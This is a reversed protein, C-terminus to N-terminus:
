TPSMPAACRTSTWGPGLGLADRYTAFRPQSRWGVRAGRESPWAGSAWRCRVAAPGRHVVARAGRHDVALCDARQAAQAAFGEEGQRVPRLGRRVRRVGAGDPNRGFDAVDLMRTENRRLGYAYAVKFMTADRFAPLWGKRGLARKRSRSTPTTSCRRCSTAPSRGSRPEAESDAVHVATNVRTIVQVPHTRVADRVRRGVRLGPRDPLRLVASRSRTPGSRPGSCDRMARLDAFWEDAMGSVVGVSVRPRARRVGAGGSGARVTSCALNRALMEDRWGELMAEFVQPEPHLLPVGDVLRLGAVRAWGGRDTM